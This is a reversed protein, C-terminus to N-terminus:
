RFLIAKSLNKRVYKIWFLYKQLVHRRWFVYRFTRNSLKYFLVIHKGCNQVKEPDTKKIILFFRQILDTFFELDIGCLDHALQLIPSHLFFRSVFLQKKMRYLHKHFIQLFLVM